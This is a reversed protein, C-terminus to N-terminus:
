QNMMVGIADRAAYVQACVDPNLWCRGQRVASFLDEIRHALQEIEPQGAARAGGKLSHAERFLQDLLAQRQAQDPNRELELLLEGAAQRHEAQEERFAALVQALNENDTLM